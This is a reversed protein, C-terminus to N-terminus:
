RVSNSSLEERSNEEFNPGPGNELEIEWYEKLDKPLNEFAHMLVEDPHYEKRDIHDIELVKMISRIKRERFLKKGEYIANIKEADLYEFVLNVVQLRKELSCDQTSSDLLMSKFYSESIFVKNSELLSKMQRYLTPIKKRRKFLLLRIEECQNDLILNYMTRKLIREPTNLKIMILGGKAVLM